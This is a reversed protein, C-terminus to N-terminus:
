RFVFILEILFMLFGLVLLIFFASAIRAPITRRSFEQGCRNCHYDVPVSARHLMAFPIGIIAVMALPYLVYRKGRSRLDDSHCTPCTTAKM